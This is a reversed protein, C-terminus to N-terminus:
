QMSYFGIVNKKNVHLATSTDNISPNPISVYTSSTSDPGIRGNKREYECKIGRKSCNSCSPLNRTCKRHNRRCYKCSIQSFSQEEFRIEKVYPKFNLDKSNGATASGNSTTEAIPQQYLNNQHHPSTSSSNPQSLIQHDFCDHNNTIPQAISLNSSSGSSSSTVLTNNINEVASSQHNSTLLSLFDLLGINPQQQFM